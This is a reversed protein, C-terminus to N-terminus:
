TLGLKQLMYRKLQFSPHITFELEIVIQRPNKLM